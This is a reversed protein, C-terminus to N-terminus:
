KIRLAGVCRYFGYVLRRPILFDPYEEKNYSVCRICEVIKEPDDFEPDPAFTQYIRKFKPGDATDLLFEDGWEPIRAKKFFVEDGREYKPYMRNNKLILSFDYDPLLAVIPKEQCLVRKPGDYYQELHGESMFKPLRPRTPLKSMHDNLTNQDSIQQDCISMEGEGYLIWDLRIDPFAEVIKAPLSNPVKRIGIIIKNLNSYSYGIKEAFARQSLGEKEILRGLRERRELDQDEGM